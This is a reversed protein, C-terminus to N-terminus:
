SLEWAAPMFGGGSLWEDLGRAAEMAERTYSERLEFLGAPADEGRDEYKSIAEDIEDVKAIATRMNSLATNPDM